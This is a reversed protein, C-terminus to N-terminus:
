SVIFEHERERVVLVPCPAYRLVREATSGLLVRALGTHGRSSLVILDSGQAEAEGVIEQYASGTRISRKKVSGPPWSLTTSLEELKKKAKRKLDAAKIATHAYGYTPLTPLPVVQVLSIDAGFRRALVVGYRLANRSPTSFAVPVLLRRIAQPFAKAEGMARVGLVPCPAPRM